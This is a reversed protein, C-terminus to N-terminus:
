RSCRVIFFCILSILFLVGALSLPREDKRIISYLLLLSIGGFLIFTISLLFSPGAYRIKINYGALNLEEISLHFATYPFEGYSYQFQDPPAGNNFKIIFWGNSKRIVVESMASIPVKLLTDRNLNIIRYQKIITLFGKRDFQLYEYRRYWLPKDFDYHVQALNIYTTDISRGISIQSKNSTEVASPNGFYTGIQIGDAFIGVIAAAITIVTIAIKLKVNNWEM